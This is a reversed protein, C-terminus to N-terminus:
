CILHTITLLCLMFGCALEICYVQEGQLILYQGNNEKVTGM